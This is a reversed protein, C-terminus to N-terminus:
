TTRAFRHPPAAVCVEPPVQQLFPVVPRKFFKFRNTGSIVEGAVSATQAQATFNWNVRSMHLAALRPIGWAARVTSAPPAAPRYLTPAGSVTYVPDAPAGSLGSRHMRACGCAGYAYDLPRAQAVHTITRSM